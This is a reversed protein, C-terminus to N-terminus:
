SKVKVSENSNALFSTCSIMSHLFFVLTFSEYSFEFVLSISSQPALNTVKNRLLDPEIEGGESDRKRKGEEKNKKRERERGGERM